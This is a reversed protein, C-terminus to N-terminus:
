IAGTQIMWEYVNGNAFNAKGDISGAIVIIREYPVYITRHYSLNPAKWNKGKFIQQSNADYVIKPEKQEMWQKTPVNYGM